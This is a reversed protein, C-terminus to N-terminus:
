AYDHEIWGFGRCKSCEQRHEAHGIVIVVEGTGRCPACDRKASRSQWGHSVPEPYGKKAEQGIQFGCLKRDYNRKARMARSNPNVAHRYSAKKDPQNM